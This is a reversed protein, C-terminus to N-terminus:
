LSVSASLLPCDNLFLVAASRVEEEQQGNESFHRYRRNEIMPTLDQGGGFGVITCSQVSLFVVRLVSGRIGSATRGSETEPQLSM